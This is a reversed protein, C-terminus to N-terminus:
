KIVIKKVTKRNGNSHEVIYTGSPYLNTEVQTSITGASFSYQAKKVNLINYITINNESESDPFLFTLSYNGNGNNQLKEIEFTPLYMNQVAVIYSMIEKGDFDTQGIKYYAINSIFNKDSYEYF